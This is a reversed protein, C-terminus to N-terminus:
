IPLECLLNLRAVYGNGTKHCSEPRLPTGGLSAFSGGLAFPSIRFIKWKASNTVPNGRLAVGRLRLSRAPLRHTSIRDFGERSTWTFSGKKEKGLAVSWRLM